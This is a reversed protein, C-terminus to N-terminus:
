VNNCYIANLLYIFVIYIIKVYLVNILTKRQIFFSAPIEGLRKEDPLAELM